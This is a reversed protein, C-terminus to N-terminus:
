DKQGVLVMAVIVQLGKRFTIWLEVQIWVITM